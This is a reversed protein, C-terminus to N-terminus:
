EWLGFTLNNMVRDLASKKPASRYITQTPQEAMAMIADTFTGLLVEVVKVMREREQDTMEAKLPELQAKM